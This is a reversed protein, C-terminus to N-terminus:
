LSGGESVVVRYFGGERSPPELKEWTLTGQAVCQKWSGAAATKLSELDAAAAVGYWLGPEANAIALAVGTAAVAIAQGSEGTAFAPALREDLAVSVRWSGGGLPEPDAVTFYSRYRDSSVVAEDPSCIAASAAARAAAEDAATVVTERDLWPYIRPGPDDGAPALYRIVVVGDCGPAGTEEGEVNSGGAGGGGITRVSGLDQRSVGQGAGVGGCAYEVEGGTIASVLGAGGSGARQGGDGTAGGGSGGWGKVNGAGDGGPDGAGGAGGIAAGGGCGGDKGDRHKSAGGGGAGGGAATVVIGGGLSSEVGNEGELGSAGGAGGAGVRITLDTGSTVAVTGTVAFGAGGGGGMYNGSGAGGGGGGGVVLYSVERVGNPVTWVFGKEATNTFSLVCLEVGAQTLRNSTGWEAGVPEDPQPDVPEDGGPEDEGRDDATPADPNEIWAVIEDLLGPPDFKMGHKVGHASDAAYCKLRYRVDHDKLADAFRLSNEAPVTTDGLGVYLFTRATGGSVALDTSLAAKGDATTAGLRAALNPYDCTAGCTICPYGLVAFDPRTGDAAQGSVLQYSALHGGASFGCVGVEKLGNAQAYARVARMAARADAMPRLDKPAYGRYWCVVATYGQEALQRAVECGEGSVEVRSYGGGPFIVIARKRDTAATPKFWILAAAEKPGPGDDIASTSGDEKLQYLIRDTLPCSSVIRRQVAEGCLTCRCTVVSPTHTGDIAAVEGQQEDFQHSCAVEEYEATLTLNAVVRTFDGGAWRVFEKGAHAPHTPEVASGGFEVWQDSILGFDFDQFIVHFLDTYVATVTLDGKVCDFPRDWERFQMGEVAPPDPPEAAMGDAVSRVALTQGDRGVFTVTHLVAQGYTATVTLDERVCDFSRDWGAFSDGERVPAAPAVAAGGDAVCRTALTVGNVDRFVVLHGETAAVPELALTQRATTLRLAPITYVGLEDIVALGQADGFTWRVRQGRGSPFNQLRRLTVDATASDAGSFQTSGCAQPTALFLEMELRTATDARNAYRCFANVQGAPQEDATYWRPQPSDCSTRTFAAYAANRVVNTWDFSNVLDNAALVTAPKDGHAFMGWYGYFAYRRAAMGAYLVDHNRGWQDSTSSYDVCVPPDPLALAAACPAVSGTPHWPLALRAAAHIVGAPVSGKVAAFVDGHNLGIGLAGSGGMSIGCLYVRNPDIGYRAIAWRVTALVRQEVPRPTMQSGEEPTAYPPRANKGAYDSSSNTGGVSWWWDQDHHARCDLYLAYFDEPPRYLMVDARCYANSVGEGSSHLAVYLPRNRTTGSADGNPYSVVFTNVHGRWAAREAAPVDALWEDRMPHEFFQYTRGAFGTVSKGYTGSATPTATLFDEPSAATAAPAIGAAFM